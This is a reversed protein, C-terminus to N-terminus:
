SARPWWRRAPILTLLVAALVSRSRSSTPSSTSYVSCPGSCSNAGPRIQFASFVEAVGAVIMMVGVILVSRRYGDGRQWRSLGPSPYVVGLAVIWARSPACRRRTRAPERPDGITQSANTMVTRRYSFRDSTCRCCLSFAYDTNLWKAVEIAGCFGGLRDAPVPHVASVSARLGLPHRLRLYVPHRGVAQAAAGSARTRLDREASRLPAGGGALWSGAGGRHGHHHHHNM